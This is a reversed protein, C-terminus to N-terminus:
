YASVAMTHGTTHALIVSETAMRATFACAVQFLIRVVSESSPGM